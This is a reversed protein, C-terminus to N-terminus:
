LLRYRFQTVEAVVEGRGIERIIEFDGLPGSPPVFNEAADAALEARLSALHGGQSGSGSQRHLRGTRGWDSLLERWATLDVAPDSGTTDNM